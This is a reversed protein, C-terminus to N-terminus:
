RSLRGGRLVARPRGPPRSCCWRPRASPDFGLPPVLHNPREEAPQLALQPWRRRRSARRCPLPYLGPWQGAEFEVQGGIVPGLAPDRPHKAALVFTAEEPVEGLEGLAASGEVVDAAMDAEDATGPQAEAAAPDLDELRHRLWRQGSRPSGPACRGPLLGRAEMADSQAVGVAFRGEDLAGEIDAEGAHRMELADAANRLDLALGGVRLNSDVHASEIPRTSASSRGAGATTLISTSPASPWTTSPAASRTRAARGTM